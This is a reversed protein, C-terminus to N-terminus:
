MHGTLALQLAIAFLLAFMAVVITLGFSWSSAEGLNDPIAIARVTNDASASILLRSNPSFRLTTPPFEHSKLISLLPTLTFSDLLRVSCDSSGFAIWKGNNSVDFTTIGKDGVKRIAEVKWKQANWRAIYAQRAAAKGKAKRDPVTNIVTYFISQDLPHYKSIRFVGQVGGPLKPMDIVKPDYFTFAGTDKEKGKGDPTFIPYIFLNSTTALALSDEAWSADYIEGKEARTSAKALDPITLVSLDSSGAVALLTGDPSLVTVKQTADTELKLSGLLCDISSRIVPVLVCKRDETLVFIRCNENEGKKLKDEASNVGCIITAGDPHAAMSMPTDEGARLEFEDQLKLNLVDDVNYLRLKNKIGTKSNGGGGGLVLDTDSLFVASYVPFAPTSHQVHRARM